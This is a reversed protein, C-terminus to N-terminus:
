QKATTPPQIEYLQVRAEVARKGDISMKYPLRTADTAMWIIANFVTPSKESAYRLEYKDSPKMGTPTKVTEQGAYKVWITYARQNAYLLACGSTGAPFSRMAYYASVFDLPAANFDREEKKAQGGDRVRKSSLHLGNASYVVDEEYNTKEAKYRNTSTLPVHSTTTILSAARGEVPVFSAVLGDLKFLSRYETANKGQFSGQREIKFDITGVSLGDVDVLYRITEGATSPLEGTIRLPETCQPLERPTHPIPSVAVSSMLKALPEKAKPHMLPARTALAPTVNVVLMLVLAIIM